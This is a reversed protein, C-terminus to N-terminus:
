RAAHCRRGGLAYHSPWRRLPHQDAVRTIARVKSYSLEGDRFAAQIAPLEPLAHAIRIKERATVLDIGCHVNLWHACSPLEEHRWPRQADLERILELLRYETRQMESCLAVIEATLSPTCM